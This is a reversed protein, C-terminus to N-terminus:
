RQNVQAQSFGALQKYRASIAELEARPIVEHVDAFGQPARQEALEMVQDPGNARNGLVIAATADRRAAEYQAFAASPDVTRRGFGTASLANAMAEADLIGQSAGNSGIPYM